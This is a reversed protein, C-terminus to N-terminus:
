TALNLVTKGKQQALEVFQMAGGRYLAYAIVYEAHKEWEESPLERLVQGQRMFLLAASVSGTEAAKEKKKVEERDSGHVRRDARM